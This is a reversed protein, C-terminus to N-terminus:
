RLLFHVKLALFMNGRFRLARRAAAQVANLEGANLQRWTEISLDLTLDPSDVKGPFGRM